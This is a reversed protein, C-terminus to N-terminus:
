PYRQATKLHVKSYIHLSVSPYPGNIISHLGNSGCLYSYGGPHLVRGQPNDKTTEYLKGSLLKVICGGDPHSHLGSYQNPAWCILYAERKDNAALKIRQYRQNSFYQYEKFHDIHFYELDPKLNKIPRSDRLLARLRNM